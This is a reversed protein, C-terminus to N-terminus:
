VKELTTRMDKGEARRAIEEYAEAIRLMTQRADQDTFDEAM